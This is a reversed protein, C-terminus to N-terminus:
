VQQNRDLISTNPLPTLPVPRQQDIATGHAPGGEESRRQMGRSSFSTSLERFLPAVVERFSFSQTGPEETM